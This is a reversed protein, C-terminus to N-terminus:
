DASSSSAARSDALVGIEADVVVAQVDGVGIDELAIRDIEDAEERLRPLVPAEQM